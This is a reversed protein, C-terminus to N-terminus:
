VTVHKGFGDIGVGNKQIGACLVSPARRHDACFKATDIDGRRLAGSAALFVPSIGSGTVRVVEQVPEFLQNHGNDSATM